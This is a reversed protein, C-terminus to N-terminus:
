TTALIERKKKQKIEDLRSVNDVGYKKKIVQQAKKICYTQKCQRHLCSVFLGLFVEKNDFANHRKLYDYVDQLAFVDGLVIWARYKQCFPCIPLDDPLRIGHKILLYTVFINFKRKDFHKGSIDIDWTKKVFDIYDNVTVPYGTKKYFKITDAWKYLAQIKRSTKLAQRTEFYQMLTEVQRM